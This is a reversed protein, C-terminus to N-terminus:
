TIPLIHAQLGTARGANRACVRMVGFRTLPSSRSQFLFCSFLVSSFGLALPSPPAASAAAAAPARVVPGKCLPRVRGPMDPVQPIRSLRSSRTGRCRFCYNALCLQM